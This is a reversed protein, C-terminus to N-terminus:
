LKKFIENVQKQLHKLDKTNEIVYHAKKVKTALPLQAQIRAKAEKESLGFKQKAREIQLAEDTTVVVIANWPEEKDWGAEFLLPIELIARTHGQRRLEEVRQNMTERVKPHIIAELSRRKKPDSFVIEALKRRDLNRDNLLVEEGFESVIQRWATRDPATVEHALVDADIRPIGLDEFMRGVTSKGVGFGGTLAIRQMNADHWKVWSKYICDENQVAPVKVM